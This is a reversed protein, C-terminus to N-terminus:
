GNEEEKGNGLLNGPLKTNMTMVCMASQWTTLICRWLEIISGEYRDM